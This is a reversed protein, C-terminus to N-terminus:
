GSLLTNEFCWGELWLLSRSNKNPTDVYLFVNLVKKRVLSYNTQGLPKFPLPSVLFLVVLNAPLEKPFPTGEQQICVKYAEWKFDM